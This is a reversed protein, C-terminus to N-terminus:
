LRGDLLQADEVVEGDLTLHLKVGRESELWALQVRGLDPMEDVVVLHLNEDVGSFPRETLISRLLVTQWSGLRTTKMIQVKVRDAELAEFSGTRCKMIKTGEAARRGSCRTLEVPSVCPKPVGSCVWVSGVEPAFELLQIEFM